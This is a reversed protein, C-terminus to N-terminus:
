STTWYFCFVCVFFFLWSSNTCEMFMINKNFNPPNTDEMLNTSLSVTKGQLSHKIAYPAAWIPILNHFVFWLVTHFPIRNPLTQGAYFNSSMMTHFFFSTTHSPITATSNGYSCDTTLQGNQSITRTPCIAPPPRFFSLIRSSALPHQPFTFFTRTLLCM